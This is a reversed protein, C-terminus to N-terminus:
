KKSQKEQAVREVILADLDRMKNQAETYAKRLPTQTENYKQAAPSKEYEAQNAQFQKELATMASKVSARDALLQEVSRSEAGIGFEALIIGALVILIALLLNSM